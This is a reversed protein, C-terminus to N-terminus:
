FDLLRKMLELEILSFFEKRIFFVPPPREQELRDQEVTERVYELDEESSTGDIDLFWLWPLNTIHPVISRVVHGLPNYPLSLMELKRIFRFSELLGCLDHEDMNLNALDLKTLSPFFQLSKTLPALCSKVNFGRFSLKNLSLTKKFGGFLAEMEGAQLISEDMGTLELEQLSLMEPLLWGLAAAVAPTLIIGNLKLEKLSNLTFGGVKNVEATCNDAYSLPKGKVSLIELNSILRLSELFCCQDLEDMYLEELKLKRLNPFFRFSKTLPALCSTMNFGKITLKYLPLPKIFGGFLAEMEDTKLISGEVGTLVFEQLSSMQPLSRGLATAVAPTLIIGYLELRKHPNLVFSGDKNVEATYCGSDGLLSCGQLKLGTLDPIFKLSELLSCQDDEDMNLKELQLETLDPFFRFSKTLPALCGRVSFGSFTLKGLPLTKNFGGFLVEMEKAELISGDVGTLKLVELFSMEPLSQGLATAAAPTLSIGDLSLQELTKLTKLTVSATLSEEARCCHANLLGCLDHEDIDLKKLNLERLNPFFQLSKTLPSLCGRVSFGSFTLESLPLTKNFGGFLVEMEKAELISGDVGTLKLVELSSMDPLSRGLAAAAAPTLSIGDLRLQELTKHTVSAIQNAKATCCLVNLLGCLDNGDMNLKELNLERLNPFFQLSKSLPALCGRVSFASFTLESLPLTKNLGGFLAEMEKAEFIRGDVGTLKLVELSSMEPLLRGLVAAVAPTLSIGDLSLHELTKLAVSAIPNVETACCNAQSVLKVKVILRKLYPIFRLSELLVFLNQEDVSFERSSGGLQLERLNPFFRFSKTFPALCGRVSFGSFSLESLPLTKNFGDFLKELEKAELISEDVGTLKLVELFSMEPLSQSLMAAVATTLSIGDLSLKKLNKLTVSAIPHVEATCCHVQTLPKGEVSLTKLNPTFKLNELLVSLIHEDVHFSGLNLERLYPFFRFSKTLPTLCGRVSFSRFTLERLPLTKNFGGFLAELEKAELISGNVGTLELEQLSSMEPLLRGLMAAIASTLSIGDLSLQELTKHTVSAIPNVEATCCHAERLLKGKVSLTKLNPIFRLSELLLCLSQEGMKFEGSFGGLNLERLNPFFRFSKTLPALCGRVSFNSFTLERLPLTKNFGGFLAEMKKAELISGDVGSLMLVKLSSMEPLSRGLAAAAAPTLSIRDLHLQKLVNHAVSTIPNVEATCCHAQSVARGKVSLTKLNPIFRLSELLLCLNQEDMNFEENFGGLNLERLNPFFRFSKTLPALCGRVSVGSFTLKRLPLTENFGGFLAEMKKAELASGDVGTLSLVILSPMEPLSRGLAEVVASTLSIGDLSLKELAELTVSATLSEEATCCLANLLGCLDNEDMNLKELNLERLNPFFQLSKSLPALCGRVSFGSFTLERLRLTKNFGGFLAEMEKAELISGDVGTLYLDELSSMEPLSQGLMAAVAPTLRLRELFLIELNKHTDSATPNAYPWLSDEQRVPEDTLMLIELNPIFRLSELLLCLNHEDMNFGGLILWRLNPFFCFSKTLPALCGRVSFGNFTLESLPLTKNFGGFLVEMEKPELISEDVVTLELRQLSFMKPLSGGLAAAIAPTLSIADLSLQELSKHTVSVIPHEEATCCHAQSVARGKVSLTKLNPIFRLSELLLCLNQEDMNFEENFGGLDLKRLNPFFRFSKTLPTLCGRVSFGSFTLWRLPLTKNFGGFLAEMENGDLISGDVGTLELKELSPMEPLSRGLVAAVASTLNIEGLHLQRLTKHTISAIPNVEATCHNAQSVLKGKVNLTELNPIFRLSELLLCLSQEDMNFEDLNLERLNPFFRFSKTIPALCGRVSFGSFTLESLPLTKNFGGFLAEMEKAELISGDVGTLRLKKLSSMESLLRGLAAAVAPTLSLVDLDLKYYYFHYYYYFHFLLNSTHGHQKVRMVLSNLNNCIFRFSELLGCQDDEDLNLMKLTLEKLNPIFQFSKTLPALCGRVSFGSFTLKSLPLTKNFGGFLAEMEKAELISGDVGTLELEQLSSMKPLLRGLVTAVAPTLSIGDLHLKDLTKHTVSAVPNVEATCCHAQSLLIGKVSLTKLNPILRLSELLHCLNQEDMNFERKFGGLTLERLNPFFLFSKILPTLCGRVSFGSLTLKRLPLTKNFGAFLAEIENTQLVSGDVGTFELEQLSSMEPLLRGLAVAATPTLTIKSLVLRELTKHTISTILTDVATSCCDNLDLRLSIINNYRSLLSALQVAGASTLNVIGPWYTRFSGITLTCKTISPNPVQELLDCVTDDRHEVVIRNLHKCNRIVAGLAKVTQGSLKRCHLSSLFKLCSQESCLSAASSPVSDATSETFLSADYDCELSLETIFFQFQGNRCCLFSRFSCNFDHHVQFKRVLDGVTLVKSSEPITLPLQLCNLFELSKNIVLDEKDLQIQLSSIGTRQFSFVFNQVQETLVNVKPVLESIPRNSTALVVRGTCNFYHSLLEAKSRVERFSDYVLDSFRRHRSTVDCLPVGTENEVDPITKSLDLTPDSIRVSTLHQFVKVAGDDSLGCIFPFVNELAQCDKLTRAQQEIGGLNGEPVCRYTIYWAALYEQISKHIFSVMEMPELSPGYESVQLLGVLISQEGRVKEPLQGFEFMLDGKLLGELAVKGIEALIEKYNEEKLKSVHSTSHKRHSHQLIHKTIARFLKTKSKVLEM